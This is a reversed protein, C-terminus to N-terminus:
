ALVQGPRKRGRDTRDFDADFSVLVLGYRQAARYQYADDFDLRFREMIGGLAQMDAPRLRIMAVGGDQIDQLFKLFAGFRALRALIIGISHLSFDTIGLRDSPIRSFFAKAEEAREQELFVELWVNTDVLFM